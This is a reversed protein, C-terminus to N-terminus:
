LISAIKLAKALAMLIATFLSTSFITKGEVFPIIQITTAEILLALIFLFYHKIFQKSFDMGEINYRISKVM